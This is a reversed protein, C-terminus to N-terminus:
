RNGGRGLLRGRLRRHDLALDAEYVNEGGDAVLLFVDHGAKLLFVKMDEFVVLLLLNGEERVLSSQGNGEAQEDIGAEAFLITKGGLLLSSGAKQVLDEALAVFGHHNREPGVHVQKG